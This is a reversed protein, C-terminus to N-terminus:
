AADIADQITFYPGREQSVNLVMKRKASPKIKKQKSM